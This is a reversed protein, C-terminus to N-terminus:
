GGPFYGLRQAGDDAAQAPHLALTAAMDPRLSGPHVVLGCLLRRGVVLYFAADAPVHAVGAPGVGPTVVCRDPLYRARLGDGFAHM